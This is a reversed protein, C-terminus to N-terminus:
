ELSVAGPSAVPCPTPPTHYTTAGSPVATFYARNSRDYSHGGTKSRLGVPLLQGIPNDSVRM